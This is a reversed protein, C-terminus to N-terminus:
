SIAHRRAIARSLPFPRARTLPRRIKTGFEITFRIQKCPVLERHIVHLGPNPTIRTRRKIPDLALLRTNSALLDHAEGQRLERFTIRFARSFPHHCIKGPDLHVVTENLNGPWPRADIPNLGRGPKRSKGRRFLPISRKLASKKAPARNIRHRRHFIRSCLDRVLSQCRDQPTSGIGTPGLAIRHRRNRGAQIRASTM